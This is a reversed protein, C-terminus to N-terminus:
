KSADCAVGLQEGGAPDQKGGELSDGLYVYQPLDM